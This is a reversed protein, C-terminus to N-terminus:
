NEKSRIKIMFNIEEIIAMSTCHEKMERQRCEYVTILGCSTQGLM